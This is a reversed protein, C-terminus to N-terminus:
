CGPIKSEFWTSGIVQEKRHSSIPPANLLLVLVRKMVAKSYTVAEFAQGSRHRVIVGLAM